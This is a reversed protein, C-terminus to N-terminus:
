TIIVFSFYNNKEDGFKERLTHLDLATHLPEIASIAKRNLIVIIVGACFNIVGACFMVDEDCLHRWGM